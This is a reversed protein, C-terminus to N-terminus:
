DPAWKKRWNLIDPYLTDAILVHGAKTPHIGDGQNLSPDGAVKELLFPMLHVNLDESIAPFIRQFAEIYAKGYNPPLQIEMLMVEISKNQTTTIIERLNQEIDEVPVGRM